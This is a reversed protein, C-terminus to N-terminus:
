GTHLQNPLLQNNPAFAISQALDFREFHIRRKATLQAGLLRTCSLDSRGSTVWVGGSIVHFHLDRQESKEPLPDKVFVVWFSM